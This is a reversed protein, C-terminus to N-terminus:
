WDAIVVVGVDVFFTSILPCLSVRVQMDRMVVARHRVKAFETSATGMSLELSNMDPSALAMTHPRRVM